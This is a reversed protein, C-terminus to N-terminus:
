TKEHPKVNYTESNTLFEFSGIGEVLYTMTMGSVEYKEAIEDEITVEFVDTCEGQLPLSKIEVGPIDKFASPYGAKLHYEKIKM